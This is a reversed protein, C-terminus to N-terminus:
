KLHCTFCLLSSDNSARLFPTFTPDHVNHCTPCELRQNYLPLTIGTGNTTGTISNTGPTELGGDSLALAANYTFGVPHDNMLDTGLFSKRLDIAFSGNHCYSCSNIDSTDTSMKRHYPAPSWNNLPTNVVMDVAISGDHCSMCIGSVSSSLTSPEDTANLTSSTYVQYTTTSAYRNWLYNYGGGASLPVSNHPTHCYVCIQNYQNFSQAGVTGGMGNPPAATLIYSLNHKSYVISGAYAMLSLTIVFLVSVIVISLRKM